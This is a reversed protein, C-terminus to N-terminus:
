SKTSGSSYRGRMYSEGKLVRYAVIYLGDSKIDRLIDQPLVEKKCIVAGRNREYAALHDIAAIAASYGEILSNENEPKFTSALQLNNKNVADNRFNITAEELTPIYKRGFSKRQITRYAFERVIWAAAAKHNDDYLEEFPSKKYVHSEIPAMNKAGAKILSLVGERIALQGSFLSVLDSLDKIKSIDTDM